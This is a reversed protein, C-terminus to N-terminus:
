ALRTNTRSLDLLLEAFAKRNLSIESTVSVPTSVADLIKLLITNSIEGGGEEKNSNLFNKLDVATSRDVVLEGSTLRAPYTDNDFGMPVRTISGGNAFGPAKFGQGGKSWGFVDEIAGGIDSFIGGIGGGGGGFPNLSSLINKIAEYVGDAISKILQPVMDIMARVFSWAMEPANQAFSIALAPGAQKILAEVIRPISQILRDIIMPAKEALREIIIPIQNALEEIFVPISDIIAEILDPLAQAFERVMQRTAEPGGALMKTLTEVIPGSGPLFLNAAAGAGSSLLNKAGEKGGLVSTAVGAGAGILQNRGLTSKQEDTLTSDDIQDTFAAFPSSGGSSLVANIKLDNQYEEKRRKRREKEEQEWVKEAEAMSKTFAKHGESKKSLDSLFNEREENHLGKTKEVQKKIASEAKSAFDTLASVIKEQNKLRNNADSDNALRAEKAIELERKSKEILQTTLKAQGGFFEQASKHVNLITIEYEIYAQRLGLVKDTIFNLVLRGSDIAEYLKSMGTAITPIVSILSIFGEAILTRITEKNESIVDKLITFVDKLSHMGALLIPNDTILAGFEEKTDGIVNELQTMAGSFTNVQAQAAGGFQENIATLALQFDKASDGTTKIRIGYRALAEISGTSAKAVLGAAQSLDIGLAAALDASAVTATKLGEKDLKGLSQILAASKLIADDEFVTVSQLTTAFKSFEDSTQKSYKGSLALSTNFRNLSVEADSSAKISDKIINKIGEIGEGFLRFAGTTATSALNGVFSAFAQKSFNSFESAKKSLDGLEKGVGQIAKVANSSNAKVEIVLDAM